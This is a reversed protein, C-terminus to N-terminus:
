LSERDSLISRLKVLKLISSLLFSLLNKNLDSLKEEEGTDEGRNIRFYSSVEEGKFLKPM